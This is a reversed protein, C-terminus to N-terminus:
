IVFVRFGSILVIEKVTCSNCNGQYVILSRLDFINGPSLFVVVVYLYCDYTDLTLVGLSNTIVFHNVSEVFKKCMQYVSVICAEKRSRLIKPTHLVRVLLDETHLIKQGPRIGKVRTDDNSTGFGQTHSPNPVDDTPYVSM